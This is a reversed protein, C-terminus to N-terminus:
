EACDLGNTVSDELAENAALWRAAIDEPVDHDALTTRLFALRRRFHGRNIPLPAHVRGIPRGTYPQQGGLHRAALETEKAIIRDLDKGEFMFGIIFDRAVRGIFDALIPRLGDIGGVRDLDSPETEDSM